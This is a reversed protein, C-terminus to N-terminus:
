LEYNDCDKKLLRAKYKSYCNCCYFQVYKSKWLKELHDKDIKPNANLLEHFYLPIKCEPNFCNHPFEKNLRVIPDSESLIVRNPRYVVEILNNLETRIFNELTTPIVPQPDNILNNIGSIALHDLDHRFDASVIGSEKFEPIGMPEDENKDENIQNSCDSEKTTM